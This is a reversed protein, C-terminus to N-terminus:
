CCIAAWVFLFSEVFFASHVYPNSAGCFITPEVFFEQSWLINSAGCFIAPGVFTKNAGCSKNSAGCFTASEVTINKRRARQSGLPYWPSGPPSGKPGTTTGESGMPTERAWFGDVNALKVGDPITSVISHDSRIKSFEHSIVAAGRLKRTVELRNRAASNRAYLQLFVFTHRSLPKQPMFQM